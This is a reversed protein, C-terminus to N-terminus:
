KIKKLKNIKFSLTHTHTHTHTHTLLPLASVSPSLSDWAPEMSDASLGIHPKFECVTLERGSGFGLPLCKVSRAM